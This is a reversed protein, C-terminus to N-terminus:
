ENLINERFSLRLTLIFKVHRIISGKSLKDIAPYLLKRYREHEHASGSRFRGSGDKINHAVSTNKRGQFLDIEFLSFSCCVIYLITNKEWYKEYKIDYNQFSIIVMVSKLVCLFVM